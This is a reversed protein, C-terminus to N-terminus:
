NIPLAWRILLLIFVLAVLHLAINKEKNESKKATEPQPCIATHLSTVTDRLAAPFALIVAASTSPPDVPAPGKVRETLGLENLQAFRPAFGTVKVTVSVTPVAVQV